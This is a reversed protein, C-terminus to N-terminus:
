RAVAYRSRRKREAKPAKRIGLGVALVTAVAADNAAQKRARTLKQNGAADREIRSSAMAARLLLSKQSHVKGELCARQFASVDAGGDRFGQGRLELETMPFRARELADRLENQKWRDAAIGDPRGFREVAASLLEDIPVTRKGLLLLDGDAHMKQYTGKAGYKVERERLGPEHPYAALSRLAGTKPWYASVASMGWSQGLDIGYYCPGSTEAEGECKRWTAAEILLAEATPAVPLNLRYAQFQPLLSSDAKVRESEARIARELHPMFELSPNARLWSRRSHMPSKSTASHVQVYDAHRLLSEFWHDPDAARTGLAILRSGPIKGLATQLSAYMERGDDLASRGWAAPEDALVLRPALGLSTRPNAAYLTLRTQTPLHTIQHRPSKSYRWVARDGWDERVSLFHEVHEAIITAQMASGAVVIVDGRAVALPGEALAATALAGMFTSKGNGRAVSLAAESVRDALAGALFRQEWDLMKFREGSGEGQSVVLDGIFAGTLESIKGEGM